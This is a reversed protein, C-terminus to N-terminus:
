HKVKKLLSEPLDYQIYRLENTLNIEMIVTKCIHPRMKSELYKEYM